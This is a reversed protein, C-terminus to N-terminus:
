GNHREKTKESFFLKRRGTREGRAAGRGAGPEGRVCKKPTFFTFAACLKRPLKRLLKVNKKEIFTIDTNQRTGAQRVPLTPRRPAPISSIFKIDGAADGGRSGIFQNPLCPGRGPPVAETKVRSRTSLCKVFLGDVDRGAAPPPTPLPPPLICGGHSGVPPAGVLAECILKNVTVIRGVFSKSFTCNVASTCLHYSRISGAFIQGDRPDFM